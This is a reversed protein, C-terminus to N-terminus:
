AFASRLASMSKADNYVVFTITRVHEPRSNVFNQVGIGAQAIAEAPSEYAGAMVGTRLAPLTVSTAGAADAAKLGAEVIQSLPRKLDDVVFVVDKFAGGHQGRARATVTAGDSLRVRSAQSHFMQGAARQIAGDIGGFWMNGSNIATVLVDAAVRTIDGSEVTVRVQTM